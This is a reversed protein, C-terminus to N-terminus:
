LRACWGRALPSRRHAAPRKLEEFHRPLVWRFGAPIGERVGPAYMLLGYYGVLISRYMAMQFTAASRSSRHAILGGNSGIQPANALATPAAALKTVVDQALRDGHRAQM